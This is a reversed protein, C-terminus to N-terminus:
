SFNRAGQLIRMYNAEEGMAKVQESLPLDAVLKFNLINARLQMSEVADDVSVDEALEFRQISNDIMQRAITKDFAPKEIEKKSGAQANATLGIVLALFVILKKM